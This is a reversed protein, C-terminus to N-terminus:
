LKKHLERGYLSFARGIEDGSKILPNFNHLEANCIKELRRSPGFVGKLVRNEFV